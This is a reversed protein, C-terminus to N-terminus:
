FQGNVTLYTRAKGNDGYGVAFYAPGLRTDSGIFVTGSNLWHDPDLSPDLPKWLKGAEFAVGWFGATGLLPSLRAVDQSLRLSAEGIGEARLEGPQYGSLHFLGGSSPLAYVPANRAHDVRAGALMTWSGFHFAKKLDLSLSDYSDSAGMGVLSRYADFRAYSGERPYRIDDLQDYVVSLKVGGENVLGEPLDTTGTARTFDLKGRVVGLRAEGWRGWDSGIDVGMRRDDRRYQALRTGNLYVDFPDNVLGANAAVFLGGDLTLPQYFETEAGRVSGLFARTKWEAGLKNLWTRRYQVGLQFSADDNFDTRLGLGLDLYGPGWPKEHPRIDLVGGQPGPLVRYDIQDFDGRAYLRGLESDLRDVDLPEGAKVDLVERVVEPNVFRTPEVEVSAIPLPKAGQGALRKRWAAYSAEDVQYALLAPLAAKAAEEGAAIAQTTDAFATASMTGLEPRILIDRKGLQKVSEDVNRQMMVRVTQDSISLADTTQRRTLLPSGVDVAIVVDGCVGRAVDVPLNRAVGGDVLVRTDREVPPFVGPVAMSARMAAALDGRSLVVMDGNELDAAVARFPLPLDDFRDPAANNVLKRILLDVKHTGIAGKPLLLQGGDSLGLGLGMLGLDDDQKDHYARQPRAPRDDLVEGWVIARVAEDVQQATRGSAYIGGVLAGMSTGVVCDVPIRARELVKLVGIHALGRAGGGGLVLAVRPREVAPTALSALLVLVTFLRGALKTKM